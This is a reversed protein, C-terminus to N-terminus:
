VGRKELWDNWVTVAFPHLAKAKRVHYYLKVRMAEGFAGNLDTMAQARILEAEPFRRDPSALDAVYLIRDPVSARRAGLTHSQIAHLAARDTIWGERRVLHASVFGHLKNPGHRLIFDLNPIKLGHNRVTRELEKPPWEKAWDHLYGARRALDPDWGHRQALQAAFDGVALCHRARAPSLEKRVRAALAATSVPNRKAAM